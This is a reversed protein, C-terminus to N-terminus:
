AADERRLQNLAQAWAARLESMLGIVEDLIEVDQHLSVKLLRDSVYLYLAELQRSLEPEPTHDLSGLLESVIALARGVAHTVEVPQERM